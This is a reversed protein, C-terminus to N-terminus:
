QSGTGAQVDSEIAVKIAAMEIDSVRQVQGQLSPGPIARMVNALDVEVWMMANTHLDGEPEFEMGWRAVSTGMTGVFAMSNPPDVSTVQESRKHNFGLDKARQDVWAGARLTGGDRIRCELVTPAWESWRGVDCMYAWVDDISGAVSIRSETRFTMTDANPLRSRTAPAENGM